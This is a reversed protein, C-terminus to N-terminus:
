LMSSHSLRQQLFSLQQQQRIVYSSPYCDMWQCTLSPVYPGDVTSRSSALGVGRYPYTASAIGLSGPRRPRLATCRVIRRRYIGMVPLIFVYRKMKGVQLSQALKTQRRRRTVEKFCRADPLTDPHSWGPEYM